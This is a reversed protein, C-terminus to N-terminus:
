LDGGGGGGGSDGGGGGGWDGGSSSSDSSSGSSGWDSGGGGSRSLSSSSWSDSSPRAAPPDYSPTPVVVVTTHHSPESYSSRGPYSSGSYTTSSSREEADREERRVRRFLWVIVLFVVVVIAVWILINHNHPTHANSGSTMPVTVVTPPKILVPHDPDYAQTPLMGEVADVAATLAGNWDTKNSQLAARMKDGIEGTKADPISPELGYGVSVFYKRETPAIAILIGNDREKRGLKWTKALQITTDGIQGGDLSSYTVVVVQPADPKNKEIAALRRSLTKTQELSLVNAYDNVWGRQILEKGQVPVIFLMIAALALVANRINSLM